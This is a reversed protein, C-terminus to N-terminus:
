HKIPSEPLLHMAANARIGLHPGSILCNSTAEQQPADEYEQHKGMATQTYLLIVWM